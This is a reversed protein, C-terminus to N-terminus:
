IEEALAAGRLRAREGQRGAQDVDGAVLDLARRGKSELPDRM